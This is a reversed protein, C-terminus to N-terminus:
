WHLTGSGPETIGNAASFFCNTGHRYDMEIKLIVTLWKLSVWSDDSEFEGSDSVGLFCNTGHRYDTEIKEIKLTVTYNTLLSVNLSTATTETLQQGAIHAEAFCIQYPPPM